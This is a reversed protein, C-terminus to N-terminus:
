VTCSGGADPGAGHRPQGGWRLGGRVVGARGQGCRGGLQGRGGPRRLLRVVLHHRPRQGARSRTPDVPGVDDRGGAAGCCGAAAGGAGRPPLGPPRHGRRPRARRRGVRGRLLQALQGGVALLRRPGRRSAARVGGPPRAAHLAAGRGRRRGPRRRCRRPDLRAPLPDLALRHPGVVREAVRGRRGRRPHPHQGDAPVPRPHLGGRPVVDGQGARGGGEVRPRRAGRLRDRAQTRAWGRAADHAGDGRRPLACTAAATAAALGPAQTPAWVECGTSTVSATCVLREMAAHALYPLDYTADIRRTARGIAKVAAGATDAVAPAGSTM